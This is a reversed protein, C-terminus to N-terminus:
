PINNQCKIPPTYLNPPLRLTGSYTTVMVSDTMQACIPLGPDRIIIGMLPTIPVFSYRIRVWIKGSCANGNLDILALNGSIDKCVNQNGDVFYVGTDIKVDPLSFDIPNTSSKIIRNQIDISNEPQLSGFVMGEQTADRVAMYAFFARGLDIAGCFLWLIVVFTLALEILSQGKHYKQLPIMKENM